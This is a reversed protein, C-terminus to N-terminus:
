KTVSPSFILILVQTCCSQSYSVEALKSALYLAITSSKYWMMSGGALFGALLGHIPEDRDRLRRLLCNVGQLCFVVYTV